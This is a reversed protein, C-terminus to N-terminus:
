GPALNKRGRGPLGADPSPGSSVGGRLRLDGGPHPRAPRAQGPGPSVHSKCRPERVPAPATPSRRTARTRRAMATCYKAARADTLQALRTPSPTWTPSPQSRFSGAGRRGRRLRGPRRRTAGAAGRVADGAAVTVPDGRGSSTPRRANKSCSRGGASARLGAFAYEDLDFTTLISCGPTPPTRQTIRRPPMSVTSHRADARGHAGRRPATARDLRVAERGDAAEGIVEIDAQADLIMRSAARPATARRRGAPGPDDGESGRLDPRAPRHRALWNWRAAPTWM